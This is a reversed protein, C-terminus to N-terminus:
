FLVSGSSVSFGVTHFGSLWPTLSFVNMWVRLLPPSVCSPPSSEQCSQPQLVLGPRALSCSASGSLHHITSCPPCALNCSAQPSCSAFRTTGCENMFGPPVFPPHFLSHLGLAGARPFLAEFGRVTFIQPPQPPLLFEWGWLLTQQFSGCPGLLYMPILVLIAWKSTPLPPPSQFNASLLALARTGERVGEGCVADCHLSM